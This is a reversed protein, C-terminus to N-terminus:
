KQGSQDLMLRTMFALHIPTKVEHNHATPIVQNM